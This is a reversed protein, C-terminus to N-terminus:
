CRASTPSVSRSATTSRWSGTTPPLSRGATGASSAPKGRSPPSRKRSTPRRRPSIALHGTGRSRRWRRMTDVHTVIKEQLSLGRGTGVISIGTVAKGDVLRTLDRASQLADDNFHLPRTARLRLQKFGAYTADLVRAPDFAGKRVRPEAGLVISGKKVSVLWDISKSRNTIESAVEDLLWFFGDVARRFREVTVYPGELKLALRHLTKGM